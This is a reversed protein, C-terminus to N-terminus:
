IRRAMLIRSLLYKSSHTYKGISHERYGIQTVPSHICHSQQTWFWHEAITLECDQLQKNPTQCKHVEKHLQCIDQQYIVTCLERIVLPSYHLRKYAFTQEM